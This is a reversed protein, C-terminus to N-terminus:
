TAARPAQAAPESLSGLRRIQPWILAIGLVVLITGIGGSVVSIVPSFLSAVLGSEFGGLENSSEIFVSNVAAVRGRLADPTRVQVLVHRIVVSINDAAGALLLMALSLPLSRSLGFVITAAGFAAVSLLLARGARRFPRRHALLLAMLLAGAYPAAKLLGLGIPGADLIDRAYIPLLSTASGLLVALLDLTIASLITKERWVYGMGAAMARLSRAGTARQQARPRVGLLSVAFILAGGAAIAFVPWAAGTWRIVFGGLPPGAAACFHFVGSNWTIANHFDQEPVLLPLLSGRAPSNFAKACAAVTLVALMAAVPGHSWSLFALAASCFSYVVQSLFVIRRRDLTDATHGAPLALIIVPLAQVLGLIGLAMASNTREYLEWGVAVSQMQLAITAVTWGSAFRRYNPHRLASYPDHVTAAM